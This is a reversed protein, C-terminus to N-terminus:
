SKQGKNDGAKCSINGEHELKRLSMELRKWEIKKTWNRQM